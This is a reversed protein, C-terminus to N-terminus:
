RQDTVVCLSAGSFEAELAPHLVGRVPQNTQGMRIMKKGSGNDDVVYM